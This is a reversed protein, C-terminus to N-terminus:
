VKGCREIPRNKDLQSQREAEQPPRRLLPPRLAAAKGTQSHGASGDRREPRRRLLWPSLLKGIAMAPVPLNKLASRPEPKMLGSSPPRSTNTCTVATSRAPSLDNLSPCRREKSTSGSLFPLPGFTTLRTMVPQGAFCGTMAEAGDACAAM